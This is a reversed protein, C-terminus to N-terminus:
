SNIVRNWVRKKMKLKKKKPSVIKSHRSSLYVYFGLCHFLYYQSSYINPSL